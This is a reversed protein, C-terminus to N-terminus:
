SPEERVVETPKKDERLGQFSPHRIVGEDTWETFAVEGVLKPETWVASRLGPDKPLEAIPRKSVVIRDLKKKL